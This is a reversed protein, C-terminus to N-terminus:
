ASRRFEGFIEKEAKLRAAIADEKSKFLGLHVGVRSVTIRACWKRKKELFYVGSTGSTNRHDIRRNRMNDQRSAERLNEIRNDDRVGNIHDLEDAPWAGHHYMWVLRHSRYKKGDIGIFLYGKENRTGRVRSGILGKRRNILLIFDGTEKDYGFLERLRHATLMIM